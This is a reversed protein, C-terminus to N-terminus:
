PGLFGAATLIAKGEPESIFAVFANTISPSKGGKVIAIPYSVVANQDDAIAVAAVNDGARKADTVYVIAADADGDAVAALTTQVTQGRTIHSAPIRVGAKDLIQKTYNGCSASEACLSVTGATALDALEKVKKPNGPKTVIVMKNKAFTIAPGALLSKNKLKNMNDTDALVVVDVPAGNEIQQELASSADYNIAVKTGPNQKVFADKLRDFAPSLSSAAAVTIETEAGTAAGTAARSDITSTSSCGVAMSALSLFLAYLLKLFRRPFM